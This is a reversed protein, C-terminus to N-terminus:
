APGEGGRVSLSLSGPRARAKSGQAACGAGGGRKAEAEVGEGSLPGVSQLRGRSPTPGDGRVAERRAAGARVAAAGRGQQGAGPARGESVQSQKHKAPLKKIRVHRPIM